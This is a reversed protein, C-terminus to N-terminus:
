LQKKFRVEGGVAWGAIISGGRCNRLHDPMNESDCDASYGHWENDSECEFLTM